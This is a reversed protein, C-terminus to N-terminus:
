WFSMRNPRLHRRRPRLWSTPAKDTQKEPAHAQRVKLGLAKALAEAHYRADNEVSQVEKACLIERWSDLLAEMLAPAGVKMAALAEDASQSAAALDDALLTMLRGIARAWPSPRGEQSSM